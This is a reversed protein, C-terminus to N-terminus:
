VLKRWTRTDVLIFGFYSPKNSNMLIRARYACPSFIYVQQTHEEVNEDAREGFTGTRIVSIRVEYHRSACGCRDTHFM